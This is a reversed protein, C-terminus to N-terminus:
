KGKQKNLITKTQTSSCSSKGTKYADALSPHAENVNVLLGGSLAFFIDGKSSEM